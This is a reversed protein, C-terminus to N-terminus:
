EFIYEESFKNLNIIESITSKIEWQEELNSILLEGIEDVSKAASFLCIKM